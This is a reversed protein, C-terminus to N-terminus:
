KIAEVKKSQPKIGESTLLYGLYEIETQMFFSKKLNARFGRDNLRKLVAEIKMLHDEETENQRQIILVDDLYVLVYDLDIFINTMVEQFMDPGCALGMALRNWVYKGDPLVTTCLQKSEKDLEMHYYGMSLDIATASAFNDMQQFM